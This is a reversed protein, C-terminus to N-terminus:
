FGGALPSWPMFGIGEVEGMPILEDDVDRGSLSYYYQMAKFEHWGKQQAIANAKMVMWAPWNCVGLYHVAGTEVIENLTRMTEKIPTLVDVGHVYLFDITDLQLRNLSEEVSNYIHVRSLGHNNISESMSGRVKTAIVLDKRNLELNQISNGLITESQGFCYINAPDIFNIGSEVSKKIMADAEEQQQKGISEWYGTGGFTM